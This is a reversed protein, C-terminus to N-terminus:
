NMVFDDCIFCRKNWDTIALGNKIHNLSLHSDPHIVSVAPFRSFVSKDFTLIATLGHVRTAAVFRAAHSPKGRYEM